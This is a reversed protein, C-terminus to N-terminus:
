REAAEGSLGDEKEANMPKLRIIIQAKTLKKTLSIKKNKAGM